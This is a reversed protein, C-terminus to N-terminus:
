EVDDSVLVTMESGDYTDRVTFQTITPSPRSFTGVLEDISIYVRDRGWGGSFIASAFDSNYVNASMFDDGDEGRIVDVGSRGVFSASLTDDGSGGNLNFGNYGPYLDHLDYTSLNDTGNTGNITKYTMKKLLEHDMKKLICIGTM